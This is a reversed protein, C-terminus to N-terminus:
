NKRGMRYTARDPWGDEGAGSPYGAEDVSCSTGRSGVTSSKEPKGRRRIAIPNVENAIGSGLPAQESLSKVETAEFM